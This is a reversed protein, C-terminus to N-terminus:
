DRTVVMTGMPVRPFLDLVDDNYLRICGHSARTGIVWPENTGHIGYATFVYRSGRQRFLRMKRPGSVGGTYYKAGVRWVAVPTAWGLKGHAVPFTREVVGNKVLYLRFESKDIVIYNRWPYGLTSPPRADAVKGEIEFVDVAVASRGSPASLARVDLTHRGPRLGGVSWMVRQAGRNGLRKLSVSGFSRGDLYVHARMGTAQNPALWSIGTGSFAVVARSGSRRATSARGRSAGTVEARNWWSGLFRIRRDTEEVRTRATSASARLATGEILFADVVAGRWEASPSTELARVTVSHPRRALGDATWVRARETVADRSLDVVKSPAGDLSIAIRGLGPAVRATLAVGTGTFRIKATAGAATALRRTGGSAASTTAFRWGGTFAANPDDDEIRATPRFSAAAKVAGHSGASRDAAWTSGAGSALQSCALLSFVLVALRVTLYSLHHTMRTSM